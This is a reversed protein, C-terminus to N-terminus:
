LLYKTPCDRYSMRITPIDKTENILEGYFNRGSGVLRVPFRGAGTSVSSAQPTNVAPEPLEVVRNNIIVTLDLMLKEREKNWSSLISDEYEGNDARLASEFADMGIKSLFPRRIKDWSDSILKRLTVLSKYMENSLFKVAPRVRSNILIDISRTIKILSLILTIFNDQGSGLGKEELLESAKKRSASYVKEVKKLRKDGRAGGRGRGLFADALRITEDYIALDDSLTERLMQNERRQNLETLYDRAEKRSRGTPLEFKGLFDPEDGRQSPYASSNRDDDRYFPTFRNAPRDEAFRDAFTEDDAEEGEIRSKRSKRKPTFGKEIVRETKKSVVGLYKTIRLVLDNYAGALGELQLFTQDLEKKAQLASLVAQDPDEVPNKMRELQITRIKKSANFVSDPNYDLSNGKPLQPM